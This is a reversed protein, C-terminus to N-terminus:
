YTVKRIVNNYCDAIYLNGTSDVDIGTPNNLHASLASGGNGSYSGTSHVGVVTTIIGETSVKRVVNNGTDTFYLNGASDMCLGQPDNLKASTAEGGDGAYGAGLSHNGAITTIVGNTGVERIVDNVSDTFYINGISDAVICRPGHLTADTASGGDGSYGAGLDYNGAVTTIVGSSNVKRVVNNYYDAIYFNGFSDATVSAPGALSADVASGGDGSYAYDGNGAATSIYSSSNVYRIVNNGIDDIYYGDDALSLGMPNYLTASTALGGDGSYGKGLSNNGAITTIIGNTSVFRIVQNYTDAICFDGADDVKVDGPGYLEASTALGGDGAFGYSHDGAITTIIGYDVVDINIWSAATVNSNNDSVIVTIQNSGFYANTWTFSYPANTVTGLHTTGAYYDVAGISGINTAGITIAINPRNTTIGNFVTGNTPSLIPFSEIENTVTKSSVVYAYITGSANSGSGGAYTTGYLVVNTTLM